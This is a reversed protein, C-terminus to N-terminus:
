EIEQESKEERALSRLYKLCFMETILGSMQSGGGRAEVFGVASSKCKDRKEQWPLQYNPKTM